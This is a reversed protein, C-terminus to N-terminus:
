ITKKQLIVGEILKRDIQLEDQIKALIGKESWFSYKRKLDKYLSLIKIKEDETLIRQKQNAKKEIHSKLYILCNYCIDFEAGHYIAGCEWCKKIVKHTKHDDGWHHSCNPRETLEFLHTPETENRPKSLKLLALKANKSGEEAAKSFWDKATDESKDVLHGELYLKGLSYKAYSNGKENAGSLLDKFTNFGNIDIKSNLLEMHQKEKEIRKRTGIENHENTLQAVRFKIYNAKTVNENGNAAAFAKAWVGQALKNENLEKAVIEYFTDIIKESLTSSTESADGEAYGTNINEM